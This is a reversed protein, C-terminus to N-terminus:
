FKINAVESVAKELEKPELPKLVYASAGLNRSAEVKDKETIYTVMICIANKDIEKIKKLTEIGDIPSYPMHIDILSIFPREKKFIEVATVGDTAGFVTFGRKEFIKKTYYVIGEEDDVVLLKLPPK